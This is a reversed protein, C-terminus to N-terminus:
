RTASQSPRRRAHKDDSSDELRADIMQRALLRSTVADRGEHTRLMRELLYTAAELRANTIRAACRKECAVEDALFFVCSGHRGIACREHSM